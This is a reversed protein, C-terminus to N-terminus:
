IQPRHRCVLYSEPHEFDYSCHQWNGLWFYANRKSWCWFRLPSGAKQQFHNLLHLPWPAYISRQDPRELELQLTQYTAMTPKQRTMLFNKNSIRTPKMMGSNRTMVMARGLFLKLGKSCEWTGCKWHMRKDTAVLSWQSATMGSHSRTGVCMPDLFLM